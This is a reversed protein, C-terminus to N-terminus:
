TNAQTTVPRLRGFDDPLSFIVVGIAVIGCFALGHRAQSAAPQIPRAPDGVKASIAHIAAVSAGRIAMQAAAESMSGILPMVQIYRNILRKWTDGQNFSAEPRELRSVWEVQWFQLVGVM